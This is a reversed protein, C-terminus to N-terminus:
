PPPDGDLVQLLVYPVFLLFMVAPIAIGSDNVAMGLVCMTLGGWLCARMWTTDPVRARLREPPAVLLVVVLVLALPITLTWISNTLVTLNSNVKRELVTGLGAGGESGAVSRVLRGLHTQESEPRSLDIAAFLALAALTVAGSVAVLRPRVARGLLLWVVLFATPIISLVGGVDSGLGPHGDMVVTLLFLGIVAVVLRTRTPGPRDGDFLAWLSCSLLVTGMSLLSYAPNGFGAFRGAVLPSYGFITNLQLRGGTSIDIVLLAYTLAVPVTAVLVPRRVDDVLRGLRTALVAVLAAGVYMALVYPWFGIRYIRGIGLAFSVVPTSMVVLGLGLALRRLLPTGLVVAGLALLALLIQLVVFTITITTVSSDRFATARNQELFREYRGSGTDGDNGASIASGTMSDPPAVGLQELITPAVDPLTVYGTRRTTGSTLTGSSFGPGRIAIPTLTEGSRPAAPSAVVVLDDPGTRELLQGLLRDSRAVAADVLARGQRGDTRSRYQDAREVDSLEVLAVVDRDWVEDFADLVAESSMRVGFPAAPDRRLLNRTISGVPVQGRRDMLALGAPRSEGSVPEISATASPGQGIQSDMNNDDDNPEGTPAAPDFTVPSASSLEVDGNGVVAATFGAGALASGLAGPEAGYLYRDNLATIAPISLQLLDGAVPWGTRREYAQAATGNEYGEGAELMRGADGDRAGARNGAGITTYAEGLATRPGITRLSLDGVASQELFASLHPLDGDAVQQWTLRPITVVLVRGPRDSASSQAQAASPVGWLPAVVLLAVLAVLIAPVLRLRPQTM